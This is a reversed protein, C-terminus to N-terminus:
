IPLQKASSIISNVTQTRQIVAFFLRLTNFADVDARHAAGRFKLGSAVMASHLGVSAGKNSAIARLVFHTKIDVWRRGFYRFEIGKDAFAKLLRESDWGGWTVPNVFVKHEEILDALERACQELSVSGEKILADTIGTLQVIEPAISEQPDILWQRVLYDEHLQDINGIAVGVQIIRESPQNFELDLALFNKQATSM